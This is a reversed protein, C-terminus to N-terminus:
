PCILNHAIHGSMQFRCSFTRRGQLRFGALMGVNSLREDEEARRLLLRRLRKEIAEKTTGKRALSAALAPISPPRDPHERAQEDYRALLRENYETDPQKGRSRPRVADKFLALATQPGVERATFTFASRLLARFEVIKRRREATSQWKGLERAARSPKRKQM